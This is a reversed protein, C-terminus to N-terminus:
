RVMECPEVSCFLVSCFLVTMSKANLYQIVGFGGQLDFNVEL